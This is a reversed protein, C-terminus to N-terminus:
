WHVRHNYIYWEVLLVVLGLLLLGRWIERRVAEWGTEGAVKVYGIEIDPRIRLTSESPDFLNVAFQRVTEGGSSATYGGLEGTDSFHFAGPRQPQLTAHAGDPKRIELEKATAPSKLSIPQGPRVQDAGLGEIQGGLYRLVNLVFVPFSPRIPWNTGIVRQINGKEDKEQDVLVVGLVADEYADRPAIAFLPGADTDILTSGGPPTELPTGEALLVNGLHLWQMLPHAPDFDIIQPADVKPRVSWGSAPPVVGISLTNAQPMTKPRARDFIVLDFAGSSDLKAYEPTKLFAPTEITLEALEAAKTTTLALELPENGSTILLVKARRPPNVAAWAEDDVALDDGSDVTLHLMGSTVEGVDFTVGGAAEAPLDVRAADLLQGDLRLTAEVSVDQRTFNQLRAFAQLIEPRNEKHRTSFAVIAVNAAEATGIPVFVPELNGLSFGSVDPFGGDSFIYLKAALPEAVQFDTIDEASRGPNALGSAVKLAEDMSTSRATPKIAALSEQLQRRNDTFMQEVRATDAFSVLMAVDGSHMSDILQGVRRKAEELRSGDVDTAQMSASNDVLFIFRDGTLQTGRWGPRLLALMAL